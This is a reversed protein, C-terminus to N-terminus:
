CDGQNTIENRLEERKEADTTLGLLYVLTNQSRTMGGCDLIYNWQELVRAKDARGARFAVIRDVLNRLSYSNAHSAIASRDAFLVYTQLSEVPEIKFTINHLTVPELTRSDHSPLISGAMGM